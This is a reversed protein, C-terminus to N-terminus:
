ETEDVGETEELQTKLNELFEPSANKLAKMLARMGTGGGGAAETRADNMARAKRAQLYFGLVKEVGDVQIGEDLSEPYEYNIIAVVDKKSKIELNEMTKM